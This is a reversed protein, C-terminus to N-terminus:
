PVAGAGLALTGAAAVWRRLAHEAGPRQVLRVLESWDVHHATAVGNVVVRLTRRARDGTLCVWQSGDGIFQLTGDIVLDFEHRGDGTVVAVRGDREAVYAFRGGAEALVLERAYPERGVLAGGVFIESSDPGQAIYGWSGDRAVTPRTVAHHWRQDTMPSSLVAEYGDRRAVFLLTDSAPLYVPSQVADFPGHRGSREVVYWGVSDRMAYAWREDDAALAFDGIEAHPAGPVGGVVFRMVSGERAVYGSRMGSAAIALRGVANWGRSVAAGHVVHTSDGRRAVYALREGKADFVPSRAMIADFQPGPVSNVVMRWVRGRLAPYALSAGDVSLVLDGVGDWFPGIVGDVVVAWRGAAQVPYAVRGGVDSFTLGDLGVGDFCGNERGGVTVCARAGRAAVRVTTQRDASTAHWVAAPRACGAVLLAAAVCARM